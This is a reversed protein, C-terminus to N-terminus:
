KARSLTVKAVIDNGEAAGKMEGLMREGQLTLYFRMTAAAETSSAEFTVNEGDLKANRIEVREPDGARGIKGSLAGDKVELDLEVPTEIKTGSGPDDILIVGSWKGSVKGVQAFLVSAALLLPLASIKSRKYIIFYPM